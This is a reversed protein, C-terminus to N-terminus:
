GDSFIWGTAGSEFGPNTVLNAELIEFFNRDEALLEGTVPDLLRCSFEYGGRPLAATVELLPRPGLDTDFGASLVFSGDSGVNYLSIPPMEPLGQWVKLEAAIPASTLNAVRFVNAIVTDGDVYTVQNLQIDCTPASVVDVQDRIEGAPFNTSHINIYWLGALLDAAQGPTLVTSGISPSSIGIDVEVGANQNPLAPGHFHAATVAASLGSHSVNWNLDNTVTDFTLTGVGTGTGGGACTGAGADAKACDMNSNLNVIEAQAPILFFVACLVLAILNKNM